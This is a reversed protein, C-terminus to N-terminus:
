TEIFFASIRPQTVSNVTSKRLRVKDGASLAIDLQASAQSDAGASSLRLGADTTYDRQNSTGGNIIIDAFWFTANGASMTIRRLDCDVPVIFETGGTTVQDSRLDQSLDSTNNRAATWCWSLVGATSTLSDVATKLEGLAAGVNNSTLGGTGGDYSVDTADDVTKDFIDSGVDIKLDQEGASNTITSVIIKNTEGLIKDALYLSTTDSASVRVTSLLSDDFNQNVVTWQALSSAGDVKAIVYDGPDLPEGYFNTGGVTVVWFYGKKISGTATKLNIDAGGDPNTALCSATSADLGGIYENHGTVLGDIETKTYYMSSDFPDGGAGPRTVLIPM